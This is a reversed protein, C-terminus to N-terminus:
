VQVTISKIRELTLNLVVADAAESPNSIDRGVTWGMGLNGQFGDSVFHWLMNAHKNWSSVLIVWVAQKPFQCVQPWIQRTRYLTQSKMRGYGGNLLVVGHWSMLVRILTNLALPMLMKSATSHLRKNRKRHGGQFVKSQKPCTSLQLLMSFVKLLLNRRFKKKKKPSICIEIM